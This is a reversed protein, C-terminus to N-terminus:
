VELIKSLIYLQERGLITKNLSAVVQEPMVCVQKWYFM